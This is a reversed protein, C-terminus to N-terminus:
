KGDSCIHDGGAMSVRLRLLNVLAHGAEESPIPYGISPSQTATLLLPSLSGKSNESVPFPDDKTSIRERKFEDCYRVVTSYPPANAGLTDQLDKIIRKITLNKLCMYKIVTCLEIKEM